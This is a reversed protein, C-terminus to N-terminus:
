LPAGQLQYANDIIGYDAADIIGNFNFDGNAYGSTGAFQYYNDIIGYDTADVMGDFNVDGGYTYKVLVTSGTVAQGNWTTTDTAGIGFADAATTVGLTTLGAAADAMSTRVGSGDWASFNYASRIFNEAAAVSTNRLVMDNDALDLRSAPSTIELVGLNLVNAGGASVNANGGALTLRTFQQSSNIALLAGSNVVIALNAAANSM